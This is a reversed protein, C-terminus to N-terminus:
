GKFNNKLERLQTFVAGADKGSMGVAAQVAPNDARMFPNTAIEEAMTSPVTPKNEARLAEIQKLREKLQTNDPDVTVSFKANGLTYQHGCYIATEPPM